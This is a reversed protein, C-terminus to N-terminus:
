AGEGMTVAQPWRGGHARRAAATLGAASGAFLLGLLVWGAPGLGLVLTSVLVPGVTDYVRTGMAFAGLYEGHRGEPALGYALGWAGASQLVEGATLLVCGAGLVLLAGAAGLRGASAFLLCAVFLFGGARMIARAAGPVANAGRSAPVQLTVALVTTLLFAGAVAWAPAQTRRVIWLPLGVTLVAGYTMLLGNLACVALYPRDRFVALPHAARTQRGSPRVPLTLIVVASIAYSAANGLVLTVYAARTGTALAVGAGLAGAAFGANCIAQNYARARVRQAPGAIQALYAGRIPSTGVEGLAAVAAVAAFMAFSRVLPYAAFAAAQVVTLIVWVRRHGFRDGLRGLPVAGALAALGALSLGLAVLGARLGAVRTFFLMSSSLFLGTGVADVLSIFAYRRLPGPPPVLARRPPAAPVAAPVASAAPTATLM